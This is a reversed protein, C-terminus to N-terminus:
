GNKKYGSNLIWLKGTERIVISLPNREFNITPERIMKCGILCIDIHLARDDYM